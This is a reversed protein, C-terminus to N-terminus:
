IGYVASQGSFREAANRRSESIMNMVWEPTRRELIGNPPPGIFTSGVKHCAICKQNYVEEGISAMELDIEEGIAISDIPGVGKDELNITESAKLKVPTEKKSFSFEGKVEKQRCQFALLSLLVLALFRYRM